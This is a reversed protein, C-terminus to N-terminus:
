QPRRDRATDATATDTVAKGPVNAGDFFPEGTVEVTNLVNGTEKRCRSWGSAM